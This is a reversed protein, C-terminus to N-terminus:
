RDECTKEWRARCGHASSYHERLLDLGFDGEFDRWVTHIHNAGNQTNDYEILFTPAQVRYYHPGGKEATGAWAIPAHAKDGGVEANSIICFM